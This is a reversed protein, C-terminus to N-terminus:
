WKNVQTYVEQINVDEKKTALVYIDTGNHIYKCDMKLIEFLYALEQETYFEMRPQLTGLNQKFAMYKQYMEKLKTADPYQVLLKGGVKLSKFMNYLIRFAKPKSTHQLVIFSFAKNYAGEILGDGEENNLQKFIINENTCYNTAHGIMDGSIDVGSIEKCQESIPQTLRGIGCGFDLVHDSKKIDLEKLMELDKETSKDFDGTMVKNKAENLKKANLWYNISKDIEMKNM